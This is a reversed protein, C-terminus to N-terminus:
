PRELFARPPLVPPRPDQLELLHVDGSVIYDAGTTRALAVLYDDDPDATLGPQSPPDAVLEADEALASLLGTIEAERISRRFKPRRIVRELEALLLPSVVLQYERDAWGEIVRAPVGRPSLLAAVFVNVDVVVRLM